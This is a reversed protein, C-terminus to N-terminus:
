RLRNVDISEVEEAGAVKRFDGEGLTNTHTHTHTHTHTNTGHTHTQTHINKPNAQEREPKEIHINTHMRM